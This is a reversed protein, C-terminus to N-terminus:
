QDRWWRLWTRYAHTSKWHRFLYLQQILKHRAFNNWQHAFNSERRRTPMAKVATTVPQLRRASIIINLGLCRVCDRTENVKNHLYACERKELKACCVLCASNTKNSKRCVCSPACRSDAQLWLVFVVRNCECVRKLACWFCLMHFKRFFSDDAFNHEAVPAKEVEFTTHTIFKSRLKSLM